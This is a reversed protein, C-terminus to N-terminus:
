HYMIDLIKMVQKDSIWNVQSFYEQKFSKSM